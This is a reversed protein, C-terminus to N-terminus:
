TAERFYGMVYEWAPVRDEELRHRVAAIDYDVFRREVTYGENGADLLTWTARKDDGPPNSLSGLNIVRIGDVSRDLPRHTHGVFVLDAEAGALIGRLDDDSHRAQIGSGEDTGPSAHVLLVRTGDPLVIRQELPLTAIWDYHGTAKLLDRTWESDALVQRWIKAEAQSATELFRNTIDRVVDPDTALRRDGNGRVAVLDTLGRLREVAGVPDFGIMAADGVFWHADVRGLSAIDALVADLALTNGHVDSFVAVRM